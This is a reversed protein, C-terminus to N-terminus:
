SYHSLLKPRHGQSEIGRSIGSLLHQLLLLPALLLLLLQQLRLQLLLLQLYIELVPRVHLRHLVPQWLNEACVHRCEDILLHGWRLLVNRSWLLATHERTYRVAGGSGVIELFVPVQQM